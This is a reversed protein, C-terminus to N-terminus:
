GEMMNVFIIEPFMYDTMIEQGSKEDKVPFRVDSSRSRRAEDMVHVVEKYTVKADPSFDIKFIDPNKKKIEQLLGHLKPRDIKAELPDVTFTSKAGNIDITITVKRNGDVELLLNKKNEDVQKQIAQTVAQPLETDIVMAQMFASSLLLVPILKMMVALLSALDVEFDSTRQINLKKM